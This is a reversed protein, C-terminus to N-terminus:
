NKVTKPTRDYRYGNSWFNKYVLFFCKLDVIISSIRAYPELPRVSNDYVSQRLIKQRVQGTAYNKIDFGFNKSILSVGRSKKM